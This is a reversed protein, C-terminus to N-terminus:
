SLQIYNAFLSNIKQNFEPIKQEIPQIEYSSSTQTNLNNGSAIKLSTIGLILQIKITCPFDIFLYFQFNLNKIDFHHLIILILNIM